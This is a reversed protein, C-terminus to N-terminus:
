TIKRDDYPHKFYSTENHYCSSPLPSLDFSCVRSLPLLGNVVMSIAETVCSLLSACPKHHTTTIIFVCSLTGQNTIAIHVEEARIVMSEAKMDVNDYLILIVGIGM